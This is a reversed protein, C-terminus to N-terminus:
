CRTKLTDVGSSSYFRILNVESWIQTTLNSSKIVAGNGQITLSTNEPVGINIIQDFRYVGRLFVLTLGTKVASNIANQVAISADAIGDGLAGFWSEMIVDDLLRQWRGTPPPSTFTSQLITGGNDADSNNTDWFFIGEGGDGVSSFGQVFVPETFISHNRLAAYNLLTTM